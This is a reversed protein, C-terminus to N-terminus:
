IDKLYDIIMQPHTIPLIIVPVAHDYLLDFMMKAKAPNSSIVIVPFMRDILFYSCVDLGDMQPMDGDLLIYDFKIGCNLYHNIQSWGHAFWTTKPKLVSSLISYRGPEDDIWLINM